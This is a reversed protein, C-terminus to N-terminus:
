ISMSVASNVIGVAILQSTNAFSTTIFLFAPTLSSFGASQKFVQRFENRRLIVCKAKKLNYRLNKDWPATHYMSSRNSVTSVTRKTPIPPNSAAIAYTSKPELIRWRNCLLETRVCDAQAVGVKPAKM